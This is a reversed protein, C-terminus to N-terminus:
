PTTCPTVSVTFGIVHFNPLFSLTGPDDASLMLPSVAQKQACNWLLAGHTHPVAKPTSTSGSTFMVVALTEPTIEAPPPTPYDVYSVGDASDLAPLCGDSQAAGVANLLLPAPLQLEESIKKAEAAFTPSALLRESSTSRAMAVLQELPQRWSLVVAVAGLSLLGMTYVFFNVSAHTLVAVRTGHRVAGQWALATRACAVRAGFDRFSLSLTMGRESSWAQMFTQDGLADARHQLCDAITNFVPKSAMTSSGSTDASSPVSTHPAGAHADLHTAHPSAPMAPQAPYAPEAPKDQKLFYEPDLLELYRRKFDDFSWAQPWPQMFAQGGPLGGLSLDPLLAHMGRSTDRGHPTCEGFINSFHPEDAAESSSESLTTPSSPRSQQKGAHADQQTERATGFLVKQAKRAM